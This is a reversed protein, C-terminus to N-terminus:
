DFEEPTANTAMPRRGMLDEVTINSRSEPEILEATGPRYEGVSAYSFEPSNVRSILQPLKREGYSIAQNIGEAVGRTAASGLLYGPNLFDAAGSYLNYHNTSPNVGSTQLIADGFGKYGKAKVAENIAEGSLTSTTLDVAAKAAVQKGTETALFAGLDAIEAAVTPMLSVLAPAALTAAAAPAIQYGLKNQFESQPIRGKLEGEIYKKYQEPINNISMSGSVINDIMKKAFRKGERSEISPLQERKIAPNLIPM